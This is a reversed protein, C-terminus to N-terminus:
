WPMLSFTSAPKIFEGPRYNAVEVFQNAWQEVIDEVNGYWTFGKLDIPRLTVYQRDAFMAVTQGTDTDKVRSEFAVTSQAEASRELAGAALGSGYPGAVKIVNLLVKSPVLETIAMELTLSGAEPSMVVRVRHHPDNQFAKIFQTRMFVAMNQVDQQIQDARLGEQWWNGRVLYNTNVPAVYLTRYRQWDVGPEVWVKDFPLRPNKALQQMPVFGSGAAPQAKLKKDMSYKMADLSAEASFRLTDLSTCGFLLM